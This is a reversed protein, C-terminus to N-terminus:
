REGFQAFPDARRHLVQQRRVADPPHQPLRRVVAVDGPHQGFPAGPGPLDLQGRRQQTGSELRLIEVAEHHSRGHRYPRDAVIADYTDCVAIIRAREYPLLSAMDHSRSIRGAGIAGINIRKSPAFQGLVASPVITPFGIAAAAGVSTKLFRRRSVTGTAAEKM